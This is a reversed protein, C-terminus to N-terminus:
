CLHHASASSYPHPLASSFEVYLLQFGHEGSLCINSHRLINRAFISYAYLISFFLSLSCFTRSTYTYMHTYTHIYKLGRAKTFATRKKKKINSYRNEDGVGRSNDYKKDISDLSPQQADAEISARKSSTLTLKQAGGSM